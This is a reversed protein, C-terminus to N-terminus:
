LYVVKFHPLQQSCWCPVEGAALVHLGFFNCSRLGKNALHRTNGDLVCNKGPWTSNLDRPPMSRVCRRIHLPM